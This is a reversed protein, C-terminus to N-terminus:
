GDQRRQRGESASYDEWTIHLPDCKDQAPPLRYFLGPLVQRLESMLVDVRRLCEIILGDQATLIINSYRGMLEVILHKECPEGLTDFCDLAIDVARELPPQTV